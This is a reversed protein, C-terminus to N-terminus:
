IANWFSNQHHMVHEGAMFKKLLTPHLRQMSRLYYLGYQAYNVHSSAFFYPLMKEAACLHLPWNGEKEARVLEMMILVPKILCDVWLKTTSSKQSKSALYKTHKKTSHLGQNNLIPRLLEETVNRLARVNQPFNKGSLLKPVGAFTSKLIEEFGSGRMLTGFAEVFSILMHMDGLCPVNCVYLFMNKDVWTINVAVQYLQKDNKFITWEQGTLLTLHAEVMATKMTDPEAPIMDSFPTYVIGTKHGPQQGSEGACKTNFGSYEPSPDECTVQRM